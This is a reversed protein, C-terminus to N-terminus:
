ENIYQYIAKVLRKKNRKITSVEKELLEAVRELTLYDRYHLYILDIYEDDSLQRLAKKIGKDEAGDFYKKLRKNVTDLIEPYPDTKVLQKKVLENVTLKVIEAVQEPKM